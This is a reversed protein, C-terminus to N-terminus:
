ARGYVPVISGRASRNAPSALHVITEALDRPTPWSAHDAQPMAARNAPTDIISPAVANVLIGESALEEALTTTIAAVAAKSAAYAVLGATPVLVPRAAVNVLRGGIGTERIRRAAERCALFCSTANMAMLADFQAQSTDLLPAMSFGGAVQISAWLPPLRAYYATAQAEDSLNVGHELVIQDHEALEFSAPTETEILPVHVTAGADVLTAVVASGLAGTGGTVVANRTSLNQTM